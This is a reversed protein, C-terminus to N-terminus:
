RSGAQHNELYDQLSRASTENMVYVSFDPRQIPTTGSPGRSEPDAELEPRALQAGPPPTLDKKTWPAPPPQLHTGPMTGSDVWDIIDGSNTQTTAVIRWGEECVRRAWYQDVEQQRTRQKSTMKPAPVRWVAPEPLPPLVGDCSTAIRQAPERTEAQAPMSESPPLSIVPPDLSPSRTETQTSVAKPAGSCGFLWGALAIFPARRVRSGPTNPKL